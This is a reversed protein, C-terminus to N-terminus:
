GVLGLEHGIRGRRTFEPQCLDLFDSILAHQRCHPAQVTMVRAKAKCDGLITRVQWETPVVRERSAPISELPRLLNGVCSPGNATTSKRHCEEKEEVVLDEQKQNWFLSTNEALSTTNQWAYIRNNDFLKM